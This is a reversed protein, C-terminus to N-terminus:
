EKIKKILRTTSCGKIYPLIIVKGGWGKVDKAGVIEHDKYDGGKVLISPRISRILRAPTPEDFLCVYDVPKIHALVFARDKEKNYPRKDGKIKRVSRDTNLGVVLIDGLKKAKNLYSLHGRHLIDFCGNTFVIIKGQMSKKKLLCALERRDYFILKKTNNMKSCHWNWSIVYM